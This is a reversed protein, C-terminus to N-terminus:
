QLRKLHKETTQLLNSFQLKKLSIQAKKQTDPETYRVVIMDTEIM